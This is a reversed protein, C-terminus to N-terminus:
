NGKINWSQSERERECDDETGGLGGLEVVGGFCVEGEVGLELGDVLGVDVADVDFEDAGAGGGFACDLDLRELNAREGGRQLQM